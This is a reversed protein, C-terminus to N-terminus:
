KTENADKEEPLAQGTYTIFLSTDIVPIALAQIQDGIDVYKRHLDQQKKYEAQVAESAGFAPEQPVVPDSGLVVFDVAPSLQNVVKGGSLTIAEVVRQTGNPDVYGNGDLDFDGAVFYTFKMDREFVINSIRDGKIVPDGTRSFV